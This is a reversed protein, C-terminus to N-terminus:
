GRLSGRGAVDSRTMRYVCSEDQMDEKEACSRRVENKGKTSGADRWASTLLGAWGVKSQNGVSSV